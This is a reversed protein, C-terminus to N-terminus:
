SNRPDTDKILDNTYMNAYFIQLNPMGSLDGRKRFLVWDLMCLVRINADDHANPESVLTNELMQMTDTIRGWQRQLYTNQTDQVGNIELLFLNIHTDLVTNALAYIDTQQPTSLFPNGQTQRIYQLISTSDYLKVDGDELYPVRKTPSNKASTDHDTKILEFEINADVLAIRCHRVFPSTLSGFLKM